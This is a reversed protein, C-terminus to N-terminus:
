CKRGKDGGYTGWRTRTSGTVLRMKTYYSAFIVCKM